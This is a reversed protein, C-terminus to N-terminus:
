KHWINVRDHEHTGIQFYLPDSSFQPDQCIVRRSNSHGFDIIEKNIIREEYKQDFSGLFTRV